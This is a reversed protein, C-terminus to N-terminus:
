LSTKLACLNEDTLPFCVSEAMANISLSASCPSHANKETGSGPKRLKDESNEKFHIGLGGSVGIKLHLFWVCELALHLSNKM